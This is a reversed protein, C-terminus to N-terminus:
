LASNETAVSALQFEPPFPDIRPKAFRSEDATVCPESAPDALYNVQGLAYVVGAAWTPRRGSLL